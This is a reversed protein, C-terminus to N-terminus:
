SKRGLTRARGSAAVRMETNMMVGAMLLIGIIAAAVLVARTAIGTEFAIPILAAAIIGCWGLLGHPTFGTIRLMLGAQVLLNPYETAVTSWAAGIYGWRPILALNLVINIGILGFTLVFIRRQAGHAILANATVINSGMAVAAAGLIISAPYAGAFRASFLLPFISRGAIVYLLEAMLLFGVVGATARRLPPVIAQSQTLRHSLGAILSTGVATAVLLSSETIKYSAAYIGVESGRFHGLLLTDLRFYSLTVIASLGVFISEKALILARQAEISIRLAANRLLFRAQFALLSAEALTLALIFGYMNPGILCIGIAAAVYVVGSIAALPATRMTLNRSQTLAALADNGGACLFYPFLLFSGAVIERSYGLALAAIVALLTAVISLAAKALISASTWENQLQAKGLFRLLIQDSSFNLLTRFLEALTLVLVWSELVVGTSARSILVFAVFAAGRRIVNFTLIGIANRRM